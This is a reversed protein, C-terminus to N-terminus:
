SLRLLNLSCISCNSKVMPGNTKNKMLEFNLNVIDRKCRGCYIKMQLIHYKGATSNENRFQKIIWIIRKEKTFRSKKSDSVGSKSLYMIRGNKTKAVKPNYTKKSKKRRNLCYTKIQLLPQKDYIRNLKRVFLKM